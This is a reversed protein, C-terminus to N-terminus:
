RRRDVGKRQNLVHETCIRKRVGGSKKTGQWKASPGATNSRGGKKTGNWYPGPERTKRPGVGSNGKGEAKCVEGSAGEGAHAANKKIKKKDDKEKPPKGLGLDGNSVKRKREKECPAL